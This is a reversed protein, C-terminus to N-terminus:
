RANGPYEYAHKYIWRMWGIRRLYGYTEPYGICELFIVGTDGDALKLWEDCKFQGANYSALAPHVAGDYADLMERFFGSGLEINIRPNFLISPSQPPAGREALITDLTAPMIQMVGMAGARSVATPDYLSEQRMQSWILNPDLQYTRTAQSVEFFYPAPYMLRRYGERQPDDSSHQLMVSQSWRIGEPYMHVEAAALTLIERVEPLKASRKWLLGWEWRAADLLGHRALALGRHFHRTQSSTWAEKMPVSWLEEDGSVPPVARVATPPEGAPFEKRLLVGYYGAPIERWQLSKALTLAAEEKGTERLTRALWYGAQEERSADRTAKYLRQFDTAAGELHGLRYKCFGRNFLAEEFRPAQPSVDILLSFTAAAKEWWGQSLQERGLEWAARNAPAGGSQVIEEYFPTMRHPRATNRFLRAGFFLADPHRSAVNLLEPLFRELDAYDKAEYFVEALLLAARERDPSNATRVFRILSDRAASAWPGKAAMHSFLSIRESTELFLEDNLTQLGLLEQYAPWARPHSPHMGILRRFGLAAGRYQGTERFAAARLWQVEPDDLDALRSEELAQEFKYADVFHRLRTIRVHQKRLSPGPFANLSDAWIKAAAGDQKIEAIRWLQFLLEDRLLFDRDAAASLVKEAQNVLELRLDPGNLASDEAAALLTLGLTLCSGAYNSSRVPPLQRFGPQSWAHIWDLRKEFLSREWLRRRVDHSLGAFESSDAHDLDHLARGRLEGAGQLEAASGSYLASRHTRSAAELSDLAEPLSRAAAPACAFGALLALMWVPRFGFSSM